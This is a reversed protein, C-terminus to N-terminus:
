NGGKKKRIAIRPFLMKGNIMPKALDYENDSGHNFEGVIEFQDPCHKGLYTKPVGMMGDYDCPIDTVKDVNIADYNDYTPYEEPSYNKWLILKEM